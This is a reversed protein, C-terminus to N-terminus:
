AVERVAASAAAFQSSDPYGHSKHQRRLISKYPWECYAEGAVIKRDCKECTYEQGAKSKKHETVRVTSDNNPPAPVPMVSMKEPLQMEDDPRVKLIAENTVEDAAEALRKAIVESSPEERALSEVEESIPEVLWAQRDMEERIFDLEDNAAEVIIEATPLAEELFCGRVM